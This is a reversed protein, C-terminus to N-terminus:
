VHVTNNNPYQHKSTIIWMSILFLLKITNEEMHEKEQPIKKINDRM